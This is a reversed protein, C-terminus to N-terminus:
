HAAAATEVPRAAPSVVKWAAGVGPIDTVLGPVDGTVKVRPTGSDSTLGYVTANSLVAGAKGGNFFEVHPSSADPPDIHCRRIVIRDTNPNHGHSWLVVNDTFLVRRTVTVPAGPNHISSSTGVPGGTVLCHSAGAGDASRFTLPAKANGVENAQGFHCCFFWVGVGSTDGDTRASEEDTGGEFDCFATFCRGGYRRGDAATSSGGTQLWAASHLNASGTTRCGLMVFGDSQYIDAGKDLHGFECGVLSVNRGRVTIAKGSGRLIPHGNKEGPTTASDFRIFRASFGVTAGDDGVLAPGGAVKLVPLTGDPAPRGELLSGAGLHIYRDGLDDSWPAVLVARVNKKGSLVDFLKRATLLPAAETGANADNGGPGFYISRRADAAVNVTLAYTVPQGGPKIVTLKVAYTGPRTYEHAATLTDVDTNGDLTPAPCRNPRAAHRFDPRPDPQDGFDWRLEDDIDAVASAELMVVAPAQGADFTDRVTADLGYGCIIGSGTPTPTVVPPPTPPKAPPPTVVPPPVPTSTVPPKAPMTSLAFDAGTVQMGAELKPALVGGLPYLVRRGGVPVVRLTYTGPALGDVTYGGDHALKIPADTTGDPRTMLLTQDSLCASVGPRYAEEGGIPRFVHGSISCTTAPM